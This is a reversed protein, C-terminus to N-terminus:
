DLSIKAEKIVPALKEAEAKIYRAFEEWISQILAGFMNYAENKYAM